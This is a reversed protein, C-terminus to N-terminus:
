QTRNKNAFSSRARHPSAGAPRRHGSARRLDNYSLCRPLFSRYRVKLLEDVSLGEKVEVPKFLHAHEQLAADDDGYIEELEYVEESGSDDFDDDDSLM